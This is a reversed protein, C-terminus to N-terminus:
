GEVYCGCYPCTIVGLYTKGIGFKLKCKGCTITVLKDQIDVGPVENLRKKQKIKKNSKM